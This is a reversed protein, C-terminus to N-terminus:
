RDDDVASDYYWAAVSSTVAYDSLLTTAPAFYDAVQAPAEARDIQEYAAALGSTGIQPATVDTRGGPAVGLDPRLRAALPLAVILSLMALGAITRRRQRRQAVVSRAQSIVRQAFDHPLEGVNRDPEEYINANNM